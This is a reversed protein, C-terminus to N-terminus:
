PFAVKEKAPKPIYKKMHKAQRKGKVGAAIQAAKYANLTGGSTCLDAFNVLTDTGPLYVMDNEKVVASEIIDKIQKASLEPFYSRLVAAVGSVVPAAMSTGQLFKYKNGPATAYIEEGPAFVDVIESSYNSFGAVMDKGYKPGIAGVEIWTKVASPKFWGQDDFRDNPYNNGFENKKADNGAAHVIVVDNDVAYKMAKDVVDKYPSAGKGFSMNIVSAGNDVAYYIANAIDKDREDGHPPLMRVGMIRVNDAVGDMGIGNKRQAGIIGAVHTGHLPDNGIIDSNGYFRENPDEYNDGVIDRPDYEPNYYYNYDVYASEAMQSIGELSEAYTNGQGILDLMISAAQVLMQDKSGRQIKVIDKETVEEPEKGIAEHLAQLFKNINGYLEMDPLAAARKEEMLTDWEKYQDYEEQEEKSLDARDRDKYKDRYIVYLRTMELNDAEVNTGDPNGIFNWGHIDDIYGNKDDDIGNDPIEGQNVWMVEKLDEHEFDVGSDLVAVITVQPTRDKLLERYMREVSIGPVGNVAPDLNFWNKPTEDPAQQAFVAGALLLGILTLCFKSNM